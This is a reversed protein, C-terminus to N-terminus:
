RTDYRRERGVLALDNYRLFCFKDFLVGSGSAPNSKAVFYPISVITSGIFPLRAAEWQM